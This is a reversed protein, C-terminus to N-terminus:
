DYLTIGMLRKLILYNKGHHFCQSYAPHSGLRKYVEVEEELGPRGEAYIKVVLNDYDTHYFVAAYNGTGLLTWFDPVFEVEVPAQSDLSRIKVTSLLENEVLKILSDIDRGDFESM